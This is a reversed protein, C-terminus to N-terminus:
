AVPSPTASASPTVSASPAPSPTVSAGVPTPTVTASISSDAAYLNTNAGKNYVAENTTSDWEVPIGFADGLPRFPIYMRDNKIEAAIPLNEPAPSYMNIAVGDVIMVSKGLTFQLTRNPAFITATKNIDDWVIQSDNLGFANSVFRLPVMLAGADGYLYAAAEMDYTKSGATYYSQGLGVRVEQTLVSSQDEASSVVKIYDVYEGATNFGSKWVGNYNGGISTNTAHTSDFVGYNEAVATGWIVAQYASRNTVPVTRDLRVGANSIVITSAVTSARAIDFSLGDRSTLGPKISGSQTAFGSTTATNINKIQLNGNTVAISTDGNLLMDSNVLDSISINVTKDRLLAGAFLERIEIDATPQYQYGIKLDTVKASVEIPDFVHAIVAQPTSQSTANFGGKDSEAQLILDSGQGGNHKAFGYEISVWLDLEIKGTKNVDVRLQRLIIENNDVKISGHFEGDNLYVAEEAVGYLTSRHTGELDYNTQSSINSVDTIEVKRFRAGRTGDSSNLLSITTNRMTWWSDSTAERIVVHATKHTNNDAGVGSWSADIFRGSTLSPISGTTTLFVDWDVRRAVLFEDTAVNGEDAGSVELEIDDPMTVDDDSYIMLNEIWLTNVLQDSAVFDPGLEIVIQNDLIDYYSSGYNGYHGLKDNRYFKDYGSYVAFDSNFTEGNPGTAAPNIDGDELLEQVYDSWDEDLVGYGTTGATGWATTNDRNDLYVQLFGNPTDPDEQHTWTDSSWNRVFHYGEPLTLYILERGRLAGPYTERIRIPDLQWYDRGVAVDGDLSSITSVSRVTAFRLTESSIQAASNDGTGRVRVTAEKDGDLVRTVLPIRLVPFDTQAITELITLVATTQGNRHSSIALSYAVERPNTASFDPIPVPTDTAYAPGPMRYYVGYNKTPDADRQDTTSTLGPVYIGKTVDYTSPYDTDDVFDGPATTDGWSAIDATAAAKLATIAAPTAGIDAEDIITEIITPVDEDDAYDDNPIFLKYTLDTNAASHRFYWEANTLELSLQQGVAVGTSSGLTVVLDTGINFYNPADDYDYNVGPALTPVNVMTRGSFDLTSEFLATDKAVTQVRIIESKSAAHVPQSVLATFAMTVALLLAFKKRM